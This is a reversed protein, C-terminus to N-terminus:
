GVMNQAQKRNNKIVTFRGMLVPLSLGCSNTETSTVAPLKSVNSVTWNTRSLQKPLLVLVLLHEEDIKKLWITGLTKTSGNTRM